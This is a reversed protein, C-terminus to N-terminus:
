GDVRALEYRNRFLVTGDPRAEDKSLSLTRPSLVMKYLDTEAGRKREFELRQIGAGSVNTTITCKLAPKGDGGSGWTVSNGIFDFRMREYSFVTKSPGDDFVYHLVLESPASLAVFVRVKLTVSRDPKAYDRYTLTGIWEGQVAALGPEPKPDYLAIAPDCLLLGMLGLWSRRNMNPTRGDASRTPSSDPTM